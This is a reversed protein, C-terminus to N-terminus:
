VFRGRKEAADLSGDNLRKLLESNSLIDGMEHEDTLEIQEIYNIVATEIFNSLNRNESKSYEKLKEYLDDEIRLTVTKSM